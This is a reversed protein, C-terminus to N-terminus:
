FEVQIYSNNGTVFHYFDADKQAEEATPYEGLFTDNHNYATYKAREKAKAFIEKQREISDSTLKAYLSISKDLQKATTAQRIM